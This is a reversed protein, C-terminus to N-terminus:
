HLDAAKWLDFSEDEVPPFHSAIPADIPRDRLNMSQEVQGIPWEMRLLYALAQPKCARVNRCPQLLQLAIADDLACMNGAIAAVVEDGLGIEPFQQHADSCLALSALDIRRDGQEGFELLLDVRPRAHRLVDPLPDSAHM